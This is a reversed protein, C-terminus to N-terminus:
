DEDFLTNVNELTPSTLVDLKISCGLASIIKLYYVVSVSTNGKECAIVKQRTISLSEALQHQSMGLQKRRTKIDYGLKKSLEVHSDVVLPISSKRFEMPENLWMSPSSNVVRKIFRHEYGLAGGNPFEKIKVIDFSDIGETKLLARVIDSSTYYPFAHFPNMLQDPHCYKAYKSGCYLKRSKIHRIIYFYEVREKM